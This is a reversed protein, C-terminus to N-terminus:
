HIATKLLVRLQVLLQDSLKDVIDISFYENIFQTMNNSMIDILSHGGVLNILAYKIKSM